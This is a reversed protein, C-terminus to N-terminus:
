RKPSNWFFDQPPTSPLEKFIGGEGRVVHGKLLGGRGSLVGYVGNYICTFVGEPGGGGGSVGYGQCAGGGPCFIAATRCSKEPLARLLIHKFWVM